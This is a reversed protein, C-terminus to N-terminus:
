EGSTEIVRLHPSPEANLSRSGEPTVTVINEIRVGFRGPLYIGPEVSFCMGPALEASNGALLYPPEHGSLGIGHGTRHIFYNGYGAESIVIRAAADVAECTVGPAALARAAHHARSVVDYAARADPDTPEGFAVTRTIDSCYGNWTCGIDLICVDGIKLPTDNPHHHPNAGNAGFCCMPTFSPETKEREMEALIFRQLERETIGPRMQTVAREFIADILQAAKELAALEEDTKRSRLLALTEDAPECLLEPELSQLLLLHVAFLEDDILALDGSAIGHRELLSQLAPVPTEADTWGLVDTIGAPNAKAQEANLAPVVFTPDGEAPVWLAFLRKHGNEAFGTLYRMQDTFSLFAFAAGREQLIQQLRAIRGAYDAM